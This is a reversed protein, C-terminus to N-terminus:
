LRVENWRNLRRSPENNKGFTHTHTNQHPAHGLSNIPPTLLFFLFLFSAEETLSMSDTIAMASSPLCVCLCFSESVKCVRVEM